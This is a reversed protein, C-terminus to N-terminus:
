QHLQALRMLDEGGQCLCSQGYKQSLYKLPHDWSGGWLVKGSDTFFVKMNM